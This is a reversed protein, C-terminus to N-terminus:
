NGESTSHGANRWARIGGEVLVVDPMGLYNLTRAAMTSRSDAQGIIFIRSMRRLELVRPGLESLPLNRTGSIHEQLFEGPERIDLFYTGEDPKKLIKRFKSINITAMRSFETNPEGYPRHRGPARVPLESPEALLNFDLIERLEPSPLKIKLANRVQVYDELSSNAWLRNKKKEIEIQSFFIENPDHAPFVLTHGPLTGFHERFSEWQAAPDADELEPPEAGGILLSDGSFIWEQEKGLGKLSICDSMHGPTELVELAVEGIQIQEGRVLKRDVRGSRTSAGMAIPVGWVRKLVHSASHHDSHLHTDIILQISIGAEAVFARYDSLLAVCPDIIVGRHPGAATQDYLIYSLCCQDRFQKFGVM